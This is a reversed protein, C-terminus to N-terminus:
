AGFHWGIVNGEADVTFTAQITGFFGSKLTVTVKSRKNPLSATDVGILTGSVVGSVSVGKLNAIKIGDMTLDRIDGSLVKATAVTVLGGSLSTSSVRECTVTIHMGNRSIMTPAAQAALKLWDPPLKNVRSFNSWSISGGDPISNLIDFPNPVDAKSTAHRQNAASVFGASLVAGCFLAVIRIATIISKAISSKM